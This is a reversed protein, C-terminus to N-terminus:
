ILQKCAEYSSILIAYAFSTRLTRPYVGTFLASAGKVKVLHAGCQWISRSSGQAVVQQKTKIVDFPTTIAAAAAGAGAAGLANAAFLQRNSPGEPGDPGLLRTSMLAEKAPEMLTWYLGAFPVDKALSAGVGRWLLRAKNM